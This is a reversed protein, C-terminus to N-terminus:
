FLSFLYCVRSKQNLTEDEGGWEGWGPLAQNRDIAEVEKDVEADKEKQFEAALTDAAFARSVLYDQNMSIGDSTEIETDKAKRKKGKKRKPEEVEAPAAAEVPAAEEADDADETDKQVKSKKKIVRKVIRRRKPRLLEKVDEDDAVAVATHVAKSDTDRTRKLCSRPKDDDLGAAQKTSIDEGVFDDTVAAAGANRM